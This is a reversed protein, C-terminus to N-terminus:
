DRAEPLMLTFTSGEGVTSQVQIQGDHLDVLSRVIALGIGAGNRVGAGRYFREFICDLDGEPIGCGTDRMSIRVWGNDDSAVSVAVHGGPETFRIANDLLHTLIQALRDRSAM